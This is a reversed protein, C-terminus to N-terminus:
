FGKTIVIQKGIVGTCDIELPSPKHFSVVM